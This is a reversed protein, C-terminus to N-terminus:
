WARPLTGPKARGLQLPRGPAGAADPGQRAMAAKPRGRRFRHLTGPTCGSGGELRGKAPRGVRVRGRRAGNREEHARVGSPARCRDLLGTSARPRGEMVSEITGPRVEVGLLVLRATGHTCM